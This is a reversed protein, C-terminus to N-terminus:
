HQNLQLLTSLDIVRDASNITSQRHAIIIRTINLAKISSNIIQENDVDLHSTAEDLFLLAPRRYIARAILLRQKQGGSLSGGLESLLTEYGMALQSIEHDLNVLKACHIIWERDQEPEFSAINDAISGAFLKDEQLVCAIYQRYNNLGLQYINHGNFLIQGQTPALLGAMIKLLTTKGIGSPGIIAVNEGAKISFSLQNFLRPANSDYHFVLNEVTLTASVLPYEVRQLPQSPEPDTLAIDAVRESHLSLIRLQLAMNILQIARATFDGRYANFAMFMGLTMQENMIMTAALWIIVVQSVADILHNIGNFMMDLKKQRITTNAADVKLNFWHKGRQPLLGLVKITAIGYLTEMFHSSASAEKIMLEESLQRYYPYTVLRLALYAGTFGLIVWILNGGYLIMMAFLGTLMILDIIGNIMNETLTTRLSDLSTFRAQVDGLKRKEFYSLPLKLLHSFLGAKWQLDILTSMMLSTWSRLMSTFTRFLIFSLLGLCILTLLDHDTAQLVHDTVLQIGIPIFLGIFEILLSLCFIKSLATKLGKVNKLMQWLNLKQRQEIQQFTTTPWAELAIGTFHQSMEALTLRKKGVAPDHIIFHQGVIKALVVFHNMNWHLICPLRLQSLEDLDLSLARTQLNLNEAYNALDDLTAGHISVGFKQRLYFLEIQMGYYRCIMSLSALGCESAETQLTLPVSPLFSFDLKTLLQKIKNQAM